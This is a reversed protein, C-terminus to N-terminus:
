YIKYIDKSIIYHVSVVVCLFFMKNKYNIPQILKVQTDIKRKHVFGKMKMSLFRFSIRRYRQGLHIVIQLHIVM